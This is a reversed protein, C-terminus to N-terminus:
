KTPLPYILIENGTGGGGVLLLYDQHFLIADTGFLPEKLPNAYGWTKFEPILVEVTSLHQQDSVYGGLVYITDGAISAAAGIRAQLLPPGQTWPGHVDCLIQTSSSASGGAKMGGIVWLCGKYEVMAYNSVPVPLKEPLTVLSSDDLSYALVDPYV